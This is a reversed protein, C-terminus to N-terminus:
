YDISVCSVILVHCMPVYGVSPFLRCKFVSMDRLNQEFQGFVHFLLLIESQVNTYYSPRLRGKDEQM